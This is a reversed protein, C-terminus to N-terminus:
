DYTFDKFHLAVAFYTARQCPMRDFTYKGLVGRLFLNLCQYLWGRQQM